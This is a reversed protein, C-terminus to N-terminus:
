KAVRDRCISFAAIAAGPPLLPLRQGNMRVCDAESGGGGGGDPLSVRACLFTVVVVLTGLSKLKIQEGTLMNWKEAGDQETPYRFKEQISIKGIVNLEYCSTMIRQRGREANILDNALSAMM